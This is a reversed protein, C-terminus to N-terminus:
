GFPCCEECQEDAGTSWREGPAGFSMADDSPDRSRMQGLSGSKLDFLQQAVIVQCRHRRPHIFNTWLTWFGETPVKNWHIRDAKGLLPIAIAWVFFVVSVVVVIAYQVPDNYELLDQGVLIGL